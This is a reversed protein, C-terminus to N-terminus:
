DRKRALGTKEQYVKSKSLSCVGIIIILSCVGISPSNCMCLSVNFLFLAYCHGVHCALSKHGATCGGIKCLLDGFCGKYMSSVCQAHPGKIVKTCKQTYQVFVHQVYHPM